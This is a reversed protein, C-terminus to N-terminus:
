TTVQITAFWGGVAPSCGATTHFCASDTSVEITTTGPTEATFTARMAATASPYGGTYSTMALTTGQLMPMAWNGASGPLLQVTLSQGVRLDVVVGGDANTLVDDPPLSSTPTPLTQVPHTLPTPAGPPLTPSTQIIKAPPIPLPESTAYRLCTPTPGAQDIPPGSPGASTSSPASTTPAGPQNQPAAASTSAPGIVYATCVPSAGSTGTTAADSTRTPATSITSAPAACATAAVVLSVMATWVVRGMSTLRTLARNPKMEPGRTPAAGPPNHHPPRSRELGDGPPPWAAPHSPPGVRKPRQRHRRTTTDVHARRSRDPRPSTVFLQPLHPSVHGGRRLDNGAGPSARLDVM